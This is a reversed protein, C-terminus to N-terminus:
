CVEPDSLQTPIVAPLDLTPLLVAMGTLVPVCVDIDSLIVCWSDATILEPIRAGSPPTTIPPLWAPVIPLWAMREAIVILGGVQFAEPQQVGLRRALRDPFVSDWGPAVTPEGALLMPPLTPTPRPRRMLDPLAVTWGEQFVAPPQQLRQAIFPHVAARTTPRLLQDPYRSQWALDPSAPRIRDSAWAQQWAAKLATPTAIWDPHEPQWSLDPAAANPLPEPNLISAPPIIRGRRLLDPLVPLWEVRVTQIAQPGLVSAPEIRFIPRALPIPYTPLWAFTESVTTEILLPSPAPTSARRYLLVPDLAQTMWAFSPPPTAPSPDTAIATLLAVSRRPRLHQAPFHPYRLAPVPFTPAYPLALFQQQGILLRVERRLWSPASPVQPTVDGPRVHLPGALAQYQLQRIAEPVDSDFVGAAPVPTPPSGLPEIPGISGGVLLRDKTYIEDPYSFCVMAQQLVGVLTVFPLRLAAPLVRARIPDPFSSQFHDPAAAPTVVPFPDFRTAVSQQPLRRPLRDPYEGLWGIQGLVFPSLPGGWFPARSAHTAPRIIRDPFEPQSDLAQRHEPRFGGVQSPHLRLRPRQLWSPAVPTFSEVTVTPPAITAVPGVAVPPLVIRARGYVQDPYTPEWGLHGVPLLSTGSAWASLLGVSRIPRTIHPPQGQTWSVFPDVFGTPSLSQTFTTLLGTPLVARVIRDPWEGQWRPDPIPIVPHPEFVSARWTTPRSPRLPAYDPTSVQWGLEVPIILGTGAAYVQQAAPPFLPRHIRDPFVPPPQDVTREPQLSAALFPVAATPLTRRDIRDPYTAIADRPLLHEPKRSEIVSPIAATPLTPRYIRDPYIGKASLQAGQEPKPDFSLVPSLAAHPSRPPLWSPYRATWGAISPVPAPTAVFVPATLASYQIQILGDPNGSDFIGGPRATKPIVLTPQALSPVAAIPLTTRHIRDPYVPDWDHAHGEADQHQPTWALVQRAEPPLTPRWVRDPYVPGVRDPVAAAVPVVVPATLSQYQLQVRGDPAGSDGAESTPDQNDGIGILPVFAVVLAALAAHASTRRTPSATQHNDQNWGNTAAPTYDVVVRAYDWEYTVSTASNGSRARLRVTFTGDLLDARTWSGGGPRALSSYSAATLTTPETSDTQFTGVTTDIAVAAELHAIGGNTSVRHEVELTVSNITAGVPIAGDFGFNSLTNENGTTNKAAITYSAVAGDDANANTPNTWSTGSANAAYETAIAV